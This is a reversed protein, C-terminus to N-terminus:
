QYPGLQRAAYDAFSTDILDDLTVQGTYYGMRQFYDMDLQLSQRAIRGDTDLGAMNMRDYATPDKVSTNATLIRVVEDRGV